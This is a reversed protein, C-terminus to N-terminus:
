EFAASDGAKSAEILVGDASLKPVAPGTIEDKLM